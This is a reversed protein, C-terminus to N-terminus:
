LNEKQSVNIIHRIQEKEKKRLEESLMSEKIARQINYDEQQKQLPKNHNIHQSHNKNTCNNSCLHQNHELLQQNYRETCPKKHPNNTANNTSHNLFKYKNMPSNTNYQYCSM